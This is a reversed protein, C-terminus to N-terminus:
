LLIRTSSVLEKAYKLRVTISVSYQGNIDNQNLLILAQGYLNTDIIRVWKENVSM